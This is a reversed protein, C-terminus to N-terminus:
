KDSDVLSNLFFSPQFTGYIAKKLHAYIKGILLDFYRGGCYNSYCYQFHFFFM